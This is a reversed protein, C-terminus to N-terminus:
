KNETPMKFGNNLKKIMQTTQKMMEQSMENAQKLTPSIENSVKNMFYIEWITIIAFFSLIGIIAYRITKFLKEKETLNNNENKCRLCEKSLYKKGCKECIAM